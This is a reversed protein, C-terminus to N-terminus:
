QNHNIILVLGQSLYNRQEFLLKRAIIIINRLKDWNLESLPILVYIQMMM